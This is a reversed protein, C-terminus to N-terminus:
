FAIEAWQPHMLPEGGSLLIYRTGLRPLESVLRDVLEPSMNTRGYRWYDCSICRSNCKDTLYLIAMPLAHLRDSNLNRVPRLDM